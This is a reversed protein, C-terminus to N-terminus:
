QALYLLYQLCIMLVLFLLRPVYLVTCARSTTYCSGQVATRLADVTKPEPRKDGPGSPPPGAERGRCDM